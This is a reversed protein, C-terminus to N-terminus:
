SPYLRFRELTQADTTAYRPYIEAALCAHAPLIYVPQGLTIQDFVPRTVKVQSVEQCCSFVQAEALSVPQWGGPKHLALQGFLRQGDHTVADKSLHASGGYVLIKLDVEYKGIVPCAVAAAIDQTNCSGVLSQAVDFFVFNGPRMEDVGTFDEALSASPTDGMSIKACIGQEALVQQLRLMRTRGEDFLGSVQERGHCAYTHGCHTLLGAFDLRDCRGIMRVLDLVGQEDHWKVGARGYGVDVKVWLPCNVELTASLAQIMESSDILLNLKIRKAIPNIADLQGPNVPVALTIDQWGRDAFYAAMDLSSVTITNVGFQRFMEGIAGCQHTKFHPRFHMGRQKMRDAMHAINNGVKQLDLVFQPKDLADNTSATTMRARLTTSAMKSGVFPPQNNLEVGIVELPSFLAPPCM